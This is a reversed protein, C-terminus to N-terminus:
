ERRQSELARQAARSLEDLEPERWGESGGLWIRLALAAQRVLMGLGGRHVVGAQEAAILFPTRIPNYVVDIAV